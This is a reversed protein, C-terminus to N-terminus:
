RRRLTNRRVDNTRVNKALMKRDYHQLLPKNVWTCEYVNNDSFLVRYRQKGNVKFKSMIELPRPEEPRNDSHQTDVIAGNRANLRPLQRNFDSCDANFKKLRDHTVLYKVPKATKEDVLQYAEGVDNRGKVVNKIVYPGIYRQRTLVKSSGPKYTEDRLLM